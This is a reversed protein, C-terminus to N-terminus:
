RESESFVTSSICTFYKLREAMAAIEVCRQNLSKLLIKGSIRVLM